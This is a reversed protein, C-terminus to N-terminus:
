SQDDWFEIPAKQAEHRDFIYPKQRIEVKLIIHEFLQLYHIVLACQMYIADQHIGFNLFTM